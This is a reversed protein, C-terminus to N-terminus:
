DVTVRFEGCNPTLELHSNTASDGSEAKLKKLVKQLPCKGSLSLSVSVVRPNRYLLSLAASLM